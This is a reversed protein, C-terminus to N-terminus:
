LLLAVVVGSALIFVLPTTLIFVGVPPMCNFILPDHIVFPYPLLAARNHRNARDVVILILNIRCIRACPSKVDCTGILKIVHM